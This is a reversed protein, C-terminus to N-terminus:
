WNIIQVGFVVELIQMIWYAIFLLVFGLVAAVIRKKGDDLSKKNTAGSVMTFGGWVIMVFLILGALPFAFALLQNIIGGTTTLDQNGGMITLPNLAELTGSTVGEDFNISPEVPDEETVEQAFVPSVFPILHGSVNNSDFFAIYLYQHTQNYMVPTSISFRGNNAQDRSVNFSALVNEEETLGAGVVVRFEGTNTGDAGRVCGEIQCSFSGGGLNQCSHEKFATEGPHCDFAQIKGPIIVLLLLLFSVFITLKFKIM